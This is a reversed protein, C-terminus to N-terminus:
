DLKFHYQFKLTYVEGGSNILQLTYTKDEKLLYPRLDISYKNEGYKAEIKPEDLKVEKGKEDTLKLTVPNGKFPEKYIFRLINNMEHVTKDMKQILVYNFVDEKEEKKPKEIEFEWVESTSIWQDGVWAEVQWAYKHGMELSNLDLPFMLSTLSHGTKRLLPRNRKIADLRSQGKNMEVLTIIFSLKSSQAIPGPPIWSLTPKLQSTKAQNEPYTLVLPTPPEVKVTQCLATEAKFPSKGLGNCDATACRLSICFEYNGPPLSLTLREIEAINQNLYNIRNASVNFISLANFGLNISVKRSELQVVPIGEKKITGQLVIDVTKSESSVIDLNFADTSKVM